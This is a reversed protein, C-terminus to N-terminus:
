AWSAKHRRHVCAPFSVFAVTIPFIGEGRRSCGGTGGRQMWSSASSGLSPLSWALLSQVRHQRGPDGEGARPGRPLWHGELKTSEM